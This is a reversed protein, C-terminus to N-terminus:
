NLNFHTTLYRSKGNRFSVCMCVLICLLGLCVGAIIGTVARIDLEASSLFLSVVLWHM